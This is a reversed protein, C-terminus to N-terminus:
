KEVFYIFYEQNGKKNGKVQSPVWGQTALGLSEGAEQVMEVALM